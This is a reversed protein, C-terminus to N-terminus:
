PRFVDLVPIYCLARGDPLFGVCVLCYKTSAVTKKVTYHDIPTVWLGITLQDPPDSPDVDFPTVTGKLFLFEPDSSVVDAGSTEYYGEYRPIGLIPSGAAALAATFQAAKGADNIALTGKPISANAKLTKIKVQVAGTIQFETCDQDTTQIAM